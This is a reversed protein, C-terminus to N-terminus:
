FLDSCWILTRTYFRAFQFYACFTVQLKDINEKHLEQAEQNSKLGTGDLIFSKDGLIGDINEVLIWWSQIVLILEM